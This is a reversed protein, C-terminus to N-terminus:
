LFRPRDFYDLGDADIPDAADRFVRTLKRVAHEAAKIESIDKAFTAIASPAGNADRLLSLTLLVPIERGDKNVRVGEIDRVIEGNRCRVLLDDAQTHREPPVIVKIPRGKLEDRSYGYTRVAEDNLDLVVGELDEILIPDTADRFVTELRTFGTM